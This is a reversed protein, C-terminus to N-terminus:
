PQDERTLLLIRSIFARAEAQNSWSSLIKSVLYTQAMLVRLVTAEGQDGIDKLAAYCRRADGDIHSLALRSALEWEVAGPEIVDGFTLQEDDGDNESM